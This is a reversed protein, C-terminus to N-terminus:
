HNARGPVQGALEEVEPLTKLFTDLAATVLVQASKGSVASALRLRLHREEDLRLTFAAKAKHKTARAIRAAAAVSVPRPAPVVVLTTPEEVVVAEEPVVEPLPEREEIPPLAQAKRVPATLEQNLQERQVLVQPVVAPMTEENAEHIDVAPEAAHGM